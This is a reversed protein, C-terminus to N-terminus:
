VGKEEHGQQVRNAEEIRRSEDLHRRYYIEERITLAILESFERIRDEGAWLDIERPKGILLLNDGEVITIKFTM